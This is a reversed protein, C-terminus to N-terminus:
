APFKSVDELVQMVHHSIGVEKWRTLTSPGADKERKACRSIYNDGDSYNAGRFKGSKVIRACHGYMQDRNERFAGGKQVFWSDPTTYVVKGAPKIKRMDFDAKFAPNVTTYDGFIPRRFGQPLAKVFEKYFLWDHRILNSEGKGPPMAEPFATGLMAFSRFNDLDAIKSIAATLGKAFAAYPEYTPAGLDVLFDVDAPAVGVQGLIKSIRGNAMPSMLHETRVRLCVGHGDIGAADALDGIAPVDFDLSIVPVALAKAARLESFIYEIFSKSDVKESHFSPDIDILAVRNKWKAKFRKVFKVAHDHVSCKPEGDEFDYEIAPIIVLPRLRAKASDPLRLFAQYEGQRWKVAPIYDEKIPM